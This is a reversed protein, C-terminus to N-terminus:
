RVISGIPAFTYASFHGHHSLSIPVLVPEKGTQEVILIPGGNPEKQVQVSSRLLPLTTSFHHVIHARLQGSQVPYARDTLPVIQQEPVHFLDTRYAVTAIYHPTIVSATRYASEYFAMGEASENSWTELTCSIKVPNFVRKGTQRTQAKYASEKMSWLTWVLCEPDSARQILQQESPTFLKDLFGSRQWNSDRRAQARDVIDNGIM